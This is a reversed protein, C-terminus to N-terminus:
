KTDKEEFSGEKKKFNELIEFHRGMDTALISQIIQKRLRRQDQEKWQQVM